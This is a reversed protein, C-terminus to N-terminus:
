QIFISDCEFYIGLICVNKGVYTGMARHFLNMLFTGEIAVLVGNISAHVVMM